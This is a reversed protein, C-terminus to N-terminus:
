WSYCGSLDGSILGPVPAWSPSLPLTAWGPSVFSKQLMTAQAPSVWPWWGGHGSNCGGSAFRSSTSRDRRGSSAAVPASVSSPFSKGSHPARGTGVLFWAPIGGWLPGWGLSPGSKSRRAGPSQCSLM